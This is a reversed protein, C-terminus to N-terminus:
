QLAYKVIACALGHQVEAYVKHDNSKNALPENAYSQVIGVDIWEEVSSEDCSTENSEPDTLSMVEECDSM